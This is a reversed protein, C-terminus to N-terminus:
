MPGATLWAEYRARDRRRIAELESQPLDRPANFEEPFEAGVLLDRFDSVAAEAASRLRQLSGRSVMLMALHVRDREWQSPERGYTELISLAEAADAASFTDHLKRLVLERSPQLSM